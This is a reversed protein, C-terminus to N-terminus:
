QTHVPCSGLDVSTDSPGYSAVWYLVSSLDGDRTPLHQDTAFPDTMEGRFSSSVRVEVGYCRGAPLFEYSPVLILNITGRYGTRDNQQALLFGQNAFPRRVFGAPATGGDTVMGGDLGSSSQPAIIFVRYELRDDDADEVDISLRVDARQNLLPNPNSAVLFVADTPTTISGAVDAALILPARNRPPIDRTETVLCSPLLLAAVLAM